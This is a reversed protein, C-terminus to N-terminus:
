VERKIVQDAAIAGAFIAGITQVLVLPNAYGALLLAAAVSLVAVVIQTARGSMGTIPKLIDVVVKVAAIAGVIDM